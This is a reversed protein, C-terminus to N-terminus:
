TKQLIYLDKDTQPLGSNIVVFGAATFDHEDLFSRALGALLLYGATKLYHHAKQLVILAEEKNQLVAQTLVGSALMLDVSEKALALTHEEDCYYHEDLVIDTQVVCAQDGLNHRAQELEQENRELLIYSFPFNADKLIQLALFGTGGGLEVILHQSSAEMQALIAHVANKLVPHILQTYVTWAKTNEWSNWYRQEKCQVTPSGKNEFCSGKLIQPLLTTLAFLFSQGVFKRDHDKVVVYDINDSYLEFRELAGDSNKLKFIMKLPLELEDDLCPVHLPHEQLDLQLNLWHSLNSKLEQRWVRNNEPQRAILAKPIPKSAQMRYEVAQIDIVPLDLTLQAINQECEQIGTQVAHLRSINEYYERYPGTTKWNRIENIQEELGGKAFDDELSEIFVFQNFKGLQDLLYPSENQFEICELNISKSFACLDFHLLMEKEARDLDQLQQLLLQYVFLRQDSAIVTFIILTFITVRPTPDGQSKLIISLEHLSQQVNEDHLSNGASALSNKLAICLYFKVKQSIGKNLEYHQNYLDDLKQQAKGYAATQHQNHMSVVNFINLPLLMAQHIKMENRNLMNMAFAAIKDIDGTQLVQSFLTVDYSTRVHLTPMQAVIKGFYENNVVFNIFSAAYDDQAQFDVNGHSMIRKMYDLCTEGELREIKPTNLPSNLRFSHRHKELKRQHLPLLDLHPVIKFTGPEM